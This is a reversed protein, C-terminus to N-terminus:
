EHLIHSITTKILSGLAPYSIIDVSGVGGIFLSDVSYVITIITKRKMECKKRTRALNEASRNEVLNETFLIAFYKGM